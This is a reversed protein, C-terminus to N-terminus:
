YSHQWLTFILLGDPLFDFVQWHKGSVGEQSRVCVADDAMAVTEDGRLRCLMDEANGTTIYFKGALEQMLHMFIYENFREEFVAARTGAHPLSRDSGSPALEEAKCPTVHVPTWIPIPFLAAVTAPLLLSRRIHKAM